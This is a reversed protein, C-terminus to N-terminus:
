LAHTSVNLRTSPLHRRGEGDGGRTDMDILPRRRRWLSCPAQEVRAYPSYRPTRAALGGSPRVCSGRNLVTLRGSPTYAFRRSCVGRTDDSSLTCRDVDSNEGRRDVVNKGGFFPWYYVIYRMCVVTLPARIVSENARRLPPKASQGDM